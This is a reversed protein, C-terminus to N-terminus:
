NKLIEDLIVGKISPAGFVINSGAIRSVVKGPYWVDNPRPPKRRLRRAYNLGFEYGNRHITEYSAAIRCELLLGKILRLDRPPRFSLLDAHAIIQPLLGHRNDRIPKTM